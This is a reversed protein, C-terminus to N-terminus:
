NNPDYNPYGAPRLYMSAQGLTGEAWRLYKESELPVNPCQYRVGNLNAAGCLQNELYWWGTNFNAKSCTYYVADKNTMKISDETDFTSFKPGIGSLDWRAWGDQYYHDDAESGTCAAPISVSYQTNSDLVTFSGYTCDTTKSPLGNNACRFLNLRLTHPQITTMQHIMELGLWVNQTSPDGFGILYDSYTKNENLNMSDGSMLTLGGGDTTMDCYVSYPDYPKRNPTAYPPNITYAGNQRNGWFVYLDACHRRPMYKECNDGQWYNDCLCHYSGPTNVCQGHNCIGPTEVCENIDNCNYGDGRYGNQCVCAPNIDNLTCVADPSCPRYDSFMTGNQCEHYITCNNTVWPKNARHPNGDEDSCGCQEIRICKVFTSITNDVVYGPDCECGDACGQDCFEPFPETCTSPCSSTCVSYHSNSPCALPCGVQDRWNSNPAILPLSLQCYHYYYQLENCKYKDNICVDYICNYYFDDITDNGLFSCGAFPGLGYASQQIPYCNSAVKEVDCDPNDDIIQGNVCAEQGPRLILFKDTIWSDEYKMFDIRNKKTPQRSNDLPLVVGDKSIVDNSWHGDINGALGCLTGQGRFEDIDPVEVCLTNSSTFTVTIQQDNEITFTNGSHRIRIMWNNKNPYYWPTLVQVGNVLVIKSRIDVHITMNYFDVEAESVFSVHYGNSPLQNKARVSFWNYPDPLITCPQTFVYPCTGQYDYRLNDYTVYHPDGSICAKQRKLNCDKGNKKASFGPKCVCNLQHNTVICYANKGCSKDTCQIVHQCNEGSTNDPCICHYYKWPNRQDPVCAGGNICLDTRNCISCQMDFQSNSMQNVFLESSTLHNVMLPNKLPAMYADHKEKQMKSIMELLTEKSECALGECQETDDFLLGNIRNSNARRFIALIAILVIITRM